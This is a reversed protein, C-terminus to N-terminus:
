DKKSKESDASSLGFWSMLSKGGGSQEKQRLERESKHENLLLNAARRDEESKPLAHAPLPRVAAEGAYARLATYFAWNVAEDVPHDFIYPLFPVVSFGLQSLM